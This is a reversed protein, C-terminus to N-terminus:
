TQPFVTIKPKAGPAGKSMGLAAKVVGLDSRFRVMEEKFAELDTESVPKAVAPELWRYLGAHVVAAVFAVCTWPNPIVALLILTWAVILREYRFALLRDKM